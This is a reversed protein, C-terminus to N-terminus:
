EGPGSEWQRLIDELLGAAAAEAMDLVREFGARGGYYPDPMEDESYVDAFEMFLRIKHRHASPALGTLHALNDRDMALIYDFRALDEVTAQRGRLGSLDVGRRAAAATARQDPPAGLHYDHTGASDIGIRSGLEREAVLKRFVGEATPSRCINGLCVFLVNVM